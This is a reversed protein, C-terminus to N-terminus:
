LPGVEPANAERWLPCDGGENPGYVDMIEMCVGKGDMDPDDDGLWHKCTGCRQAPPEPNTM